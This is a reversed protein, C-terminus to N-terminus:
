VRPTFDPARVPGDARKSFLAYGSELLSLFLVHQGDPTWLPWRDEYPDFTLQSATEGAVDYLWVDEIASGLVELAIRTGDPSVQVTNYELLSAGLPEERGDRDIWVLKRKARSLGGAIYVASGNDAFDFQVSGGAEIRVDDLVRVPNGIMELRDTDFRVAMLSGSSHGYILHGTPSYRPFFGDGLPRGKGTSLSLVELRTTSLSGSWVAFIMEEGNPLFTLEGHISEGETLTTIPEPTGGDSSVRMLRFTTSDQFVITGNEGWVAVPGPSCSCLTTPPGGSLPVKKLDGDASAFGVWQGNPSFFPRRAGETGPIAVAELRNMSRHYLQDGDETIAVYVLERGDPSIAVLTGVRPPLQGSVPIAFRAPVQDPSISNRSWISVIAVILAIGAVAWALVSWSRVPSQKSTEFAGDLVLRVDGIDRVREKPNKQLCRQLYLKLTPPTDGPLREWSPESKIVGALIESADSGEFARRGTLMEYLVAGFAWIDCRKDVTKGRAQEPSMYAATGMIAGVVTGKTLTPSQSAGAGPSDAEVGAVKALGFDLIKVQEDATVKINAPKLDRHIIGKEHAAELGKAVQRALSLAEDLRVPGRAIREALTEGDVLEM